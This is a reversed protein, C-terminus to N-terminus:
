LLINYHITPSPHCTTHHRPMLVESVKLVETYVRAHAYNCRSKYHDHDSYNKFSLCSCLPCSCQPAEVSMQILGAVQNWEAHSLMEWDGNVEACSILGQLQQFADLATLSKQM